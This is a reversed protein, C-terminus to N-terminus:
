CRIKEDIGEFLTNKDISILSPSLNEGIDYMRPSCAKVNLRLFVM